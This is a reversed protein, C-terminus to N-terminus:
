TTIYRSREYYIKLLSARPHITWPKDPFFCLYIFAQSHWSAQRGESIVHMVLWFEYGLQFGKQNM